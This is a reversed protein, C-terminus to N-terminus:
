AIGKHGELEQNMALISQAALGRIKPNEAVVIFVSIIMLTFLSHASRCIGCHPSISFNLQLKYTLCRRIRNRVRVKDRVRIKVGDMVMLGVGKAVDALGYM